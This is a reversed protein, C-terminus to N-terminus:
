AAGDGFAEVLVARVREAIGPNVSERNGAVNLTKVDFAIVFAQLDDRTPNVFFPKAFQQCLRMTLASGKSTVDGFVVTADAEGINRGTRWAYSDGPAEVMGYAKLHPEAGAETKWGKPATGGTPIGMERAAILAGQDAGTQGGSIIREPRM